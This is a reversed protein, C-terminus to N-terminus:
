AVFLRSSNQVNKKTDALRNNIAKRLGAHARCADQFAAQGGMAQIAAMQTDLEAQETLINDVLANTKMIDRDMNPIATSHLWHLHAKKTSLAPVSSTASSPFLSPTSKSFMTSLAPSASGARRAKTPDSKRSNAYTTHNQSYAAGPIVTAPEQCTTKPIRFSDSKRKPKLSTKNVRREWVDRPVPVEAENVPNYGRHRNRRLNANAPMTFPRDFLIKNNPPTIRINMILPLSARYPKQKLTLHLIASYSTNVSYPHWANSNLLSSLRGAFLMLNAAFSQYMTMAIHFTKLQSCNEGSPPPAVFNAISHGTMSIHLTKLQSNKKGFPPPAVFNAVLLKNIKVGSNVTVSKTPGRKGYKCLGCELTSDYFNQNSSGSKLPRQKATMCDCAKKYRVTMSDSDGNRGIVHRYVSPRPGPDQRNYDLKSYPRYCWGNTLMYNVNKIQHSLISALLENLPPPMYNSGPGSPPGRDIISTILRHLSLLRDKSQVNNSIYCSQPLSNTGHILTRKNALCFETSWPILDYVFLEAQVNFTSRTATESHFRRDYANCLFYGVIIKAGRIINIVRKLGSYDVNLGVFSSSLPNSLKDVVRYMSGICLVSILLAYLIRNVAVYRVVIVMPPETLVCSSTWNYSVNVLPVAYFVISLMFSRIILCKVLKRCKPEGASDSDGTLESLSM